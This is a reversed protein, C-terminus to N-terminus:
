PLSLTNRSTGPCPLMRSLYLCIMDQQSRDGGYLLSIYIAPLRDDPSHQAGVAPWVRSQPGVDAKRALCLTTLTCATAALSLQSPM